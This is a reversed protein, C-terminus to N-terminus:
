WVRRTNKDKIHIYGVIELDFIATLDKITKIYWSILETQKDAEQIASGATPDPYGEKNKHIM